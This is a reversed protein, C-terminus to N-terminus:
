NDEPSLRSLGGCTKLAHAYAEHRPDLDSARVGTRKGRERCTPDYEYIPDRNAALLDHLRHAEIM